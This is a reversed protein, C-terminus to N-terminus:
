NYEHPQTSGTGSGSSILFIQYRQSDFRPSRFRYGPVTVVLGCLRDNMSQMSFSFANKIRILFLLLM